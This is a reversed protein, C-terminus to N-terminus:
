PLNWLRVTKDLSGSLVRHGDPSFAVSTVSATHGELRCVEQSSAVDWLRIITDSGDKFQGNNIEGGTGTLVRRGDPSYAVSNVWTLHGTFRRLERGSEPDWIRATKDSSGSLIWRGTHVFAVASVTDAHGELRRLERSSELDWLRVSHDDGGSLARHGDPSFALSQVMDTHGTLTVLEQGADLDWLRILNDETGSLGLLGDPSIAVSKVTKWSGQFARLQKGSDVEWLRITGDWGGSLARRGDGSVAVSMVSAKHGQFRRLGRGSELDWLRMTTDDSGSLAHRGDPTFAVSRVWGEHEQFTRLEGGAPSGGLREEIFTIAELAEQDNPQIRLIAVVTERAEALAERDLQEALLTKLKDFDAPLHEQGQQRGETTAAPRTKVASSIRSATLGGPRMLKLLAIANEPRKKFYGVCRQIMEIHDGPVDFEETLEDPWGPHLERTVDGVLLQYWMVGLSYLDHRPDPQDGRRQEPSMYLPTGSGRFLSAQEAATLQGFFSGGTTTSRVAHTATVGGIGFDTLKVLSGSALLNAPKLNSVLLNAPKLDRHVMGQEHAFALAEVVQRILELALGPRFGRGTQQRVATLHSTLDGGPVFEYVLFPPHAELAYGYLRVIHNSWKTDVVSMLRDLIARERHLTPVMAADLCFKIARPQNQEFRNKARYVAGFGGIGLLEELQYPTGPLESGIPFPPVDVPLLRIWTREQDAALTPPLTLKGTTRNPILIRRISLPIATLYEIALSKDEPSAQAALREVAENAERRSDAVPLNALQLIVELQEQPPRSTMGAVWRTIIHPGFYNIGKPAPGDLSLKAAKEKASKGLVQSCGSVVGAIGEAALQVLFGPSGNSEPM